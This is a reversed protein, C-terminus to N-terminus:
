SAPQGKSTESQSSNASIVIIPDLVPAPVASLLSNTYHLCSIVTDWVLAIVPSTALFLNFIKFASDVLDVTLNSTIYSLYLLSFSLELSNGEAFQWKGFPLFFIHSAMKPFILFEGKLCILNLTTLQASASKTSHLLYWISDLRLSSHIEGSLDGFLPCFAESM